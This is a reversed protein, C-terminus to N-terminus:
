LGGGQPDLPRAPVDDPTQSQYWKYYGLGVALPYQGRQAKGKPSGRLKLVRGSRLPKWVRVLFTENRVRVLTPRVIWGRPPGADESACRRTDPKSVMQLLGLGSSASITRM